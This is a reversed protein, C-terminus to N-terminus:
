KKPDGVHLVGLGTIQSSKFQVSRNDSAGWTGNVQPRENIIFQAVRLTGDFALDLTASDSVRLTSRIQAAASMLRLTGEQVATDGTYNLAGHLELTGPGKKVLSAGKAESIDGLIQLDTDEKGDGVIFTKSGGGFIMKGKIRSSGPKGPEFAVTQASDAALHIGTNADLQVAGLILAPGDTKLLHLTLPEYSNINSTDLVALTGLSQDAVGFGVEGGEVRLTTSSELQDGSHFTLKGGNVYIDGGLAVTGPAKQLRLEGAELTAGRVTNSVLDGSEHDGFRLVGEGTKIFPGGAVEGGELSLVNAAVEVPAKEKLTLTQKSLSVVTFQEDHGTKILGSAVVPAYLHIVTDEGGEFIATQEDSWPGFKTGDSWVNPQAPDNWNGTKQTAPTSGDPDFALNDAHVPCSLLALCALPLFRFKFHSSLFLPPAM